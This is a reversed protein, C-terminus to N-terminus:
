LKQIESIDPQRLDKKNLLEKLHFFPPTFEFDHWNLKEDWYGKEIDDPFTYSMECIQPKGNADILFDYAMSQFNLEKSIKFGLEIFRLDINNRDLDWDGSGSARFDGKRVFRRCAFAHNGIINVRTDFSNNPLFQQFLVYNKEIQWHIPKIGKKKNLYVQDIKLRIYKELNKYKVNGKHPIGASSIGSGFMKRIIKQAEIKSNVLIVNSSGAGKKLKFVVPYDAKESWDLAHEEEWFIWSQIAPFGKSKLLYYEKIKDDFHWCSDLNPFCNIKMENEIVPLITKAIQHDDDTHAWRYLFLDVEKVKDWFDPEDIHLEIFDVNNHELIWKYIKNRKVQYEPFRTSYLGVLM